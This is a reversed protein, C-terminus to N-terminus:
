NLECHGLDSRLREHYLKFSIFLQYWRILIMGQLFMFVTTTYISCKCDPHFSIHIAHQSTPIERKPPHDEEAPPSSQNPPANAQFRCTRAYSTWRSGWGCGSPRRHGSGASTSWDAWRPWCAPCRPSGSMVGGKM